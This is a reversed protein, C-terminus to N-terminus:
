ETLKLELISIFSILPSGGFRDRKELRQQAPKATTEVDPKTGTKEDKNSVTAAPKSDKAQEESEPLLQYINCAVSGTGGLFLCIAVGWGLPNLMGSVILSLGFAALGFGTFLGAINNILNM